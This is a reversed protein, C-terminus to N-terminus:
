FYTLNSSYKGGRFQYFLNPLKNEVAVTSNGIKNVDAASAPSFSSLMRKFPSSASSSPIRSRKAQPEGDKKTIETSVCNSLNPSSVVKNMQSSIASYSPTTSSSSNCKEASNMSRTAYPSNGESSCKRELFNMKGESSDVDSEDSSDLLPTMDYKKFQVVARQIIKGGEKKMRLGESYFYHNGENFKLCNNVMLEFDKAFEDVDLYRLSLVNSRMTSLDMPHKIIDRYGRVRNADVPEAFVGDEDVKDLQDLVDLLFDKIPWLKHNDVKRLQMAIEREQKERKRLLELVLRGMELSTRANHWLKAYQRIMVSTNRYSTIRATQQSVQLRRLLPVGFRSRRKLMWFARLREFFEKKRAIKVKSIIQSLRKMPIVPVLITSSATRKEALLKRTKRINQRSQERRQQLRVTECQGDLGKSREEVPGHMDCLSTKHVVVLESDDRGLEFKLHWNASLACTVHFATYCNSKNCQICAGVDRQKCIYCILRRRAPPVRHIGEIPELFVSNAFHVEPIWLACAVHAWRNDSTQKMAGGLNPCLCCSVPESPSLLCRKCLWQGEPIYPVGYCEQHVALNCMDCFLIVNTNECEGDNCVCCVADDDVLGEQPGNPSQFYSEKELRDFLYEFISDSVRPLNLSSRSNNMAQLWHVDEDDMDYEVEDSEGDGTGWLATDALRIYAGPMSPAKRPRYKLNTEFGHELSKGLSIVCRTLIFHRRFAARRPPCAKDTIKRLSSERRSEKSPSAEDASTKAIGALPLVEHNEWIRLTVVSGGLSIEINEQAQLWSMPRQSKRSSPGPLSVPTASCAAQCTALHSKIGSFSKYVRDCGNRPCRFPPKSARLQDILKRVEANVGVM